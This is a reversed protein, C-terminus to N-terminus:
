NHYPHGKFITQARYIQEVFIIRALKHPFTLPSLSIKEQANALLEASHGEAGAIIFIIKQNINEIKQYLWQSFEPSKFTKGHETLLILYPLSDKCLDQIKKQIEKTEAEKNEAFAKVEHITLLPSNLRVLYDNEIASLHSDKLKGVVILHLAKSM